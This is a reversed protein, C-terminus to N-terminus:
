FLFSSYLILLVFLLIGSAGNLMLLNSPRVLRASAPGRPDKVSLDPLHELAARKKEREEEDEEDEDAEKEPEKIVGYTGGGEDDDETPKTPPEPKKTISEPKSAAKKGARAPQVDAVEEARVVFSADCKPCKVRKGEPVPQAPKLVAHCEPCTFKAVPML